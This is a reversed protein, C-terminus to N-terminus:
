AANAPEIVSRKTRARTTHGITRLARVLRRTSRRRDPCQSRLVAIAPCDSGKSIYSDNGHGLDPRIPAYMQDCALRVMLTQILIKCSCNEDNHITGSETSNPVSGPLRLCFM